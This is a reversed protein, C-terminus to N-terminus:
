HFFNDQIFTLVSKGSGLLVQAQCVLDNIVNTIHGAQKHLSYKVQLHNYM